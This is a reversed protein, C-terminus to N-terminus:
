RASPPCTPRMAASSPSRPMSASPIPSRRSSSAICRRTAPWWAAQRSAPATSTSQPRQRRRAPRPAQQPGPLRVLRLQHLAQRRDADATGAAGDASRFFPNEIGLMKGVKEHQRISKHAPLDTFRSPRFTRETKGRVRDIAQALMSMTRAEVQIDTTRHATRPGAPPRHRADLGDGTSASIAPLARM